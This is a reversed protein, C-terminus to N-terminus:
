FSYSGSLSITRGRPDAVRPDWGAGVVNDVNHWTFPPQRDFLNVVGATLTLNKIGRYTTFLNAQRTPSLGPNQGVEAQGAANTAM